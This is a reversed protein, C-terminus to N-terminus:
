HYHIKSISLDLNINVLGSCADVAVKSYPDGDIEGIFHCARKTWTKFESDTINGFKFSIREVVFGPSILKKNPRISLKVPRDGIFVRYYLTDDAISAVGDSQDLSRRSIVHSPHLNHSAFQGVHDIRTPLVVEYAALGRVFLATPLFCLYYLLLIDHQVSIKNICLM